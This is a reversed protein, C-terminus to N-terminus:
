RGGWPRFRPSPAAPHVGLPRRGDARCVSTLPRSGPIRLTVGGRPLGASLFLSDRSADLEADMALHCWGPRFTNRRGGGGWLCVSSAWTVDPRATGTAVLRGDGHLWTPSTACRRHLIASMLLPLQVRRASAAEFLPLISERGDTGALEDALILRPASLLARGIAVRQKEGGSLAGPRRDLLPGIGLLDIVRGMDERPAERPAFWGGYALNQRVSLHPFLRGEQFIYGIRRHHPRLRVGVSTDLLTWAGSAIRGEDPMLLGAVANVVTTKGSGSRGFLVTVGSPARFGADLSFGDFRHRLSVELM